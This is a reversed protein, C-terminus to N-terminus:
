SAGDVDECCSGQTPAQLPLSKRLRAMAIRMFQERMDILRKRNTAFTTQRKYGEYAKHVEDPMSDPAYKTKARLFHDLEWIIYAYKGGNVAKEFEDQEDPLDYELTAKM